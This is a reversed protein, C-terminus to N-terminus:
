KQPMLQLTGEKMESKLIQTNERKKKIKSFTQRNLQKEWFIQQNKKRNKIEM